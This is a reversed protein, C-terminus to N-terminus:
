SEIPLDAGLQKVLNMISGLANGHVIKGDEIVFYGAHEFTFETGTPPIGRFEGEHTGYDERFYAVRDGEAILETFEGALDPFASWYERWLSKMGDRGGIPEESGARYVGTTFDEALLEDMVAPNHEDLEDFLRRVIAKNEETSTASM